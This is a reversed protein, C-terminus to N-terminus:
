PTRAPRKANRRHRHREYETPLYRSLAYDISGHGVGVERAAAQVSWEHRVLLARLWAAREDDPLARQAPSLERACGRATCATSSAM